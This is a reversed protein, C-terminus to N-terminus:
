LHRLGAVAHRGAGPPHPVGAPRGGAPVGASHRAHQHFFEAPFVGQGPGADARDPIRDARGEHQALHLLYLVPTFGAKALARMMKPRTFAESLFVADPCRAKVERIVWEWFPVPKTHPNDVRFTRVGQDVWFLITDRLENWLGDRDPNYFDVNVIDEYKKPPNEAYKITGDPRYEFWDRTSASGPITRRASSRSISRSRSASRRAARRLPPFRRAHRAGPPGRQARRREAGIAYPSGPDGPEAILATTAARATSGGSRTSRRRPLRCRLRAGRGRRAARDHRRLDRQADPRTGQSRPFMEYWAAFRAETRDVVLELECATSCQTPVIM